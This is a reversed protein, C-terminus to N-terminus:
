REPLELGEIDFFNLKGKIGTVPKEFLVPNQLVWHYCDPFAWLSKSNEVIDVLEVYGIIAENQLLSPKSDIAKKVKAWHKHIDAPAKNPYAEIGYYAASVRRYYDWAIIFDVGNKLRGYNDFNMAFKRFDTDWYRKRGIRDPLNDCQKYVQLVKRKLGEPWLETNDLTDFGPYTHKSSSHIYVRGRYDTKWSRNEVDKFGFCIQYSIPNRVSLIRRKM